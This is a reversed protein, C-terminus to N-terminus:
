PQRHSGAKTSTKTKVPQETPPSTMEGNTTPQTQSYLLGRALRRVREAFAPKEPDQLSPTTREPSNSDKPSSLCPPLVRPPKASAPVFLPPVGPGPASFLAPGEAAYDYSGSTLGSRGALFRQ